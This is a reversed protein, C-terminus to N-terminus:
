LKYRRLNHQLRKTVRRRGGQKPNLTTNDVPSLEFTKINKSNPTTNNDTTDVSPLEFTKMKSYVTKDESNDDIATITNDYNPDITREKDGQSPYQEIIKDIVQDLILYLQAEYEKKFYDLQDQTPTPTFFYIVGATKPTTRITSGEVFDDLAFNKSEKTNTLKLAINMAKQKNAKIEIINEKESEKISNIKDTIPKIVEQYKQKEVEKQSKDKNFNNTKASVKVSQSKIEGNIANIENDLMKIKESLLKNAKFFKSGNDVLLKIAEGNIETILKECIIDIPLKNANNEENIFSAIKNSTEDDIAIPKFVNGQNIPNKSGFWGDGGQQRNVKTFLVKLINPNNNTCAIHLVTNNNSDKDFSINDKIEKDTLIYNLIEPSKNSAAVLLPTTGDKFKDEYNFDKFFEFNKSFDILQTKNGKQLILKFFEKIDDVTKDDKNLIFDNFTNNIENAINKTEIEENNVKNNDAPKYQKILNRLTNVDKIYTNVLNQNTNNINIYEKALSFLKELGDLSIAAENGKWQIKNYEEAKIGHVNITNATVTNPKRMKLDWNLKGLPTNQLASTASNFKNTVASAASSVGSTVANKTSSIGSKLADKAGQFTRLIGFDGGKKSFRKKNRGNRRQKRNKKTHRM